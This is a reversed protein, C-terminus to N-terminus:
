RCIPTVLALALRDGADRSPIRADPRYYCHRDARRSPDRRVKPSRKKAEVRVVACWGDHVSIGLRLYTGYYVHM